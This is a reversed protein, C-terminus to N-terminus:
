INLDLLYHKNLNRVVWFPNNVAKIISAKREDMRWDNIISIFRNDTLYKLAMNEEVRENILKYSFVENTINGLIFPELGYLVVDGNPNITVDYKKKNLSYELLGMHFQTKRIEELFRVYKDLTWEDEYDFKSPFVTPKFQMKIITNDFKLEYEIENLKKIRYSITNNKLLKNIREFVYKEQGTVSRIQLNVSDFKDEAFIGLLIALVDKKTENQHFEDISIRYSLSSNKEDCINNLKSILDKTRRLNWYSSTILEYHSNLAGQRILEIINEWVVLPDGEGSLCIKKSSLSLNNLSEISYNNLILDENRHLHKTMCFSCSLPCRASLLVYLLHDKNSM